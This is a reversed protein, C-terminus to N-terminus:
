QLNKWFDEYNCYVDAYNDGCDSYCNIKHGWHEMLFRVFCNVYCTSIKEDKLDKSSFILDLLGNRDKDLDIKVKCEDCALLHLSAM